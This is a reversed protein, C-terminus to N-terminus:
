EEESSSSSSIRDIHRAIEEKAMELHYRNVEKAKETEGALIYEIAQRHEDMSEDFRQEASLSDVRFRQVMAQVREYVMNLLGNDALKIYLEHLATDWRIYEELDHAKYAETMRALASRLQQRGDEDLTRPLHDIGYGELLLRMDYIEEIDKQTFERAYVGKNPIEVALGDYVLQRLAERVPTRSVNLEEALEIEQLRQGGVYKGSCIDERLSKYVQDKLTLFQRKAM